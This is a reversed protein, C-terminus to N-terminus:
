MKGHADVLILNEPKYGDALFLNKGDSDWLGLIIHGHSSYDVVGWHLQALWANAPGKSLSIARDAFRLMFGNGMSVLQIPGRSRMYTKARLDRWAPVAVVFLWIAGVVLGLSAAFVGVLLWAGKVLGVILIVAFLVGTLMAIQGSAKNFSNLILDAVGPTFPVEMTANEARKPLGGENWGTYVGETAGGPNSEAPSSVLGTGYTKLRWGTVVLIISYILARLPLGDGNIWSLPVALVFLIGLIFMIWGGIRM